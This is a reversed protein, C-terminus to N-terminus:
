VRMVADTGWLMLLPGGILVTHFVANHNFYKQSISVKLATILGTMFVWVGQAVGFPSGVIYFGVCSITVCPIGSLLTFFFGSDHGVQYVCCAGYFLCTGLTGWYRADGAPFINYVGVMAIFFNTSVASAQVIRWGYRIIGDTYSWFGEKPLTGRGGEYKRNLAMWGLHHAMGGLIATSVMTM